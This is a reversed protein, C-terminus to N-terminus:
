ILRPSSFYVPNLNLSIKWGCELTVSPIMLVLWSHNLQARPTLLKLHLYTKESVYQIYVKIHKFISIFGIAVTILITALVNLGIYSHVLREGIRPLSEGTGLCCADPRKRNNRTEKAWILKTHLASFRVKEGTQQVEVYYLATCCIPPFPFAEIM